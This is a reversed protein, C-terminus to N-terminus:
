AMADDIPPLATEQGESRESDQCAPRFIWTPREKYSTSLTDKEPLLFIGKGLDALTNTATYMFVDQDSTASHSDVSWKGGDNATDVENLYPRDNSACAPYIVAVPM